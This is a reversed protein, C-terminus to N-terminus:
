TELFVGIEKSATPTILIIGLHHSNALGGRCYAISSVAIITPCLQANRIISLIIGLIVGIIVGLIVLLSEKTAM